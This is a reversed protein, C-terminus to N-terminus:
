ALKMVNVMTDQIAAGGGMDTLLDHTLANASSGKPMLSNWYGQPMCVVGKKVKNKIRAKLFVEGRQNFVKVEDGDAIGYNKADLEHIDLMPQGELDRLTTINAHSSNLFYRTSKISLLRLPYSKKDTESQTVAIYDPLAPQVDPNYLLCKKSPTNFNGAAHPRWENPVKLRAWGTKELSDFTIGELYPHDSNLMSQVISKDELYLYDETFGMERALLRFFETNPKAAGLPPIAPQNINIYPTAWSTFLDWNEFPTTAPFVYDAYMATDTMFHEIVVTFLDERKLGALVLNQNPITVAPNANYVFLADVSPAMEKDTLAKGLEVMNISRVKKGSVEEPLDFISYNLSQGFLEYAMHMLGGGLDKWAGTLTPLMGITRFASSGNSQHEMGILIRILAPKSTAYERAFAEIDTIELGTIESVYQPAYKQVHAKLEEFGSTYNDIYEQDQLGESLIINIMGLALATDTGPFPQIHVDAAEATASVFPDVVVLKAGAVRAKEIYPWLHQNSYLTNTGWLVIYRSHVIDEPMIGTSQGNVAEIGAVAADGCITRELNSAGIHKFFSRGAKGQVMGENGGYSFPLIAEGGKESTITNIRKAVDSIAEEWSVEKFEAQGKAGVRKLPKLLRHPSFVVESDFHDMKNCLKGATYPNSASGKFSVVQGSQTEIEWSCTDPCDHHCAGFVKKSANETACGILSLNSVAFTGIGVGVLGQASIQVFHRRNFKQSSTRDVKKPM